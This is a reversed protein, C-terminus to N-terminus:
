RPNSSGGPQSSNPCVSLCPLAVRRSHNSRDEQHMPSTWLIPFTGKGFCFTWCKLGSCCGSPYRPVKLALRKLLSLRHRRSTPTCHDGGRGFQFQLCPLRLSGKKATPMFAKVTHSTSTKVQIVHLDAHLIFDKCGTKQTTGM